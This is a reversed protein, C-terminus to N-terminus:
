SRMHLLGEPRCVRARESKSFHVRARGHALSIMVEEAHARRCRRARSRNSSSKHVNQITISACVGSPYIHPERAGCDVAVDARMQEMYLSLTHLGRATRASRARDILESKSKVHAAFGRAM